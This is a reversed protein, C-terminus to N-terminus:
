EPAPSTPQPAKIFPNVANGNKDQIGGGFEIRGSSPLFFKVIYGEETILTLKELIPISDENETIEGKLRSKVHVRTSSGDYLRDDKFTKYEGLRYGVISVLRDGNLVQGTGSLTGTCVEQMGM